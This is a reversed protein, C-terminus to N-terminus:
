YGAAAKKHCKACNEKSTFAKKGDHCSFCLKGANHDAMKIKATGKKMTFPTGGKHCDNCKLGKDAHIKGDFTVKGMAGGKFEAKQGSSVAMASGVFAVAIILAAIITLKKM